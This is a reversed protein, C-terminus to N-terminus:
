ARRTRAAWDVDSSALLEVRTKERDLGASIGAIMSGTPGPLAGLLRAHDQLIERPLHAEEAAVASSFLHGHESPQEALHAAESRHRPWTL